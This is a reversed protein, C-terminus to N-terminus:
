FTGARFSTSVRSRRTRWFTRCPSCWAPACSPRCGTPIIRGRSSHEGFSEPSVDAEISQPYLGDRAIAVADPDVDSAFVQLKVDRKAVGIQERFLMALSYTEEGSSCGAVWIRLPRDLDHDRVLNPIVSAERPFRFGAPRSLVGHRQDALRPLASRARNSDRLLLALYERQRPRQRRWRWADSSGASWRATSTSPHLRSGDDHAPSRHDEAACGASSEQSHRTRPTSALAAGQEHSVLAEAIKAASLVLDVEGTAIANQPMGDYDAEGVEQAIVLGGKAKVARFASAARRRRNGLSGRVGDARRMRAGALEFFILHSDRATVRRATAVAAIRRPREGLSLRRPSHCLRARARDGNRRDGALVPMATNRTLLDVMMSDHSPDLHQVLLFAMGNKAPLADLLKRCAELGGASAGIAVIPFDADASTSVPRRIWVPRAAKIHQPHSGPM